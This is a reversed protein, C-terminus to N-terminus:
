FRISIGSRITSNRYSAAFDFRDGRPEGKGSAIADLVNAAWLCGTAIIYGYLNEEREDVTGSLRAMEPVLSKKEEVTKARDFEERVMDYDNKALDYRLKRDIVYLALVFMGARFAFARGTNGQYRQGLGPFFFSRLVARKRSRRPTTVNFDSGETPTAKPPAALLYTETVNRLYVWAGLAATLIASDRYANADKALKRSTEALRELQEQTDALKSLEVTAEQETKLHDYPEWVQYVKIADIVLYTITEATRGSQGLRKQGWGPLIMSRAVEGRWVGSFKCRQGHDSFSFQLTRREYGGRFVTLRYTLGPQLSCYDAPAVQTQGVASRVTLSAESPDSDIHLCRQADATLPIGAALVTVLLGFFNRMLM